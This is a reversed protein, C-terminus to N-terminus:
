ENFRALFIELSKRQHAFIKKWTRYYDVRANGFLWASAPIVITTVIDATAHYFQLHYFDLCTVCLWGLALAASSWDRLRVARRSNKISNECLAKTIELHKEILNKFDAENM